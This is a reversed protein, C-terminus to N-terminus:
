FEAGINFDFNVKQIWQPKDAERSYCIGEVRCNRSQPEVIPWGLSANLAGLPTLLGLSIGIAHYNKELFLKPRTFIDEFNYAFNDELSRKAAPTNTEDFREMIADYEQKSFFSNGLDWFLSVSMVENLVEKRLETKVVVLQSGGSPPEQSSGTPKPSQILVYPGLQHAFGRVDNAGGALLRQNAPLVDPLDSSIRRINEYSTLNANFAFIVGAFLDKYYSNSIYWKFYRYESFFAERAWSLETNFLFGSTPFSLNNRKDLRYRLGISGVRSFGTTVLSDSQSPTGEDELLQFRYFPTLTGQLHWYNFIHALSLELTNSIKWIDDAIAQHSVSANGTLNWNFIHPETYSLSLKRGLLTEGSLDKLSNISSQQKEESLSGRFTIRRGTGWLNYYSLETGYQLGRSINYGPGFKIRGADSERVNVLLDVVKHTQMEYVEGREITVSSFIGLNLLDTRTQNISSQDYVDGSELHFERSVVYPYTDILGRITLQGIHFIKSESVDIKVSANLENANEEVDVSINAKADLFGKNFYSEIIKAELGSIDEQSLAEDIKTKLLDEIDAVSLAHNGSIVISKLRRLIGEDVSVHAVAVKGNSLFQLSLKLIKADWFGRNRYLNLIKNRIKDLNKAENSSFLEVFNTTIVVNKIDETSVQYNGEIILNTIESKEGPNIYYFYTVSGDDEVQKTPGKVIPFEYGRNKFYEIVRKKVVFPDSYNKRFFAATEVDLASSIVISSEDIFEYNIRDGIKGSIVLDLNLFDDTFQANMVQVSSNQYGEDILMKEFDEIKDRINEMDCVEGVNLDLNTDEPIKFQTHISRILCPNNSSIALDYNTSTSSSKEKLFFEAHPYGILAVYERLEAILSNKVYLSSPKGIYKNKIKEIQIKSSLGSKISIDRILLPRETTAEWISQDHLSVELRDLPEKQDLRRLAQDVEEISSAANLEKLFSEKNKEFNFGKHFDAFMLSTSICLGLTIVITKM